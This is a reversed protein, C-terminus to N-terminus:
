PPLRAQSPTHDGLGPSTAPIAPVSKQTPDLQLSCDDDDDPRRIKVTHRQSRRFILFPCM